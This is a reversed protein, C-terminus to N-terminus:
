RGGAIPTADDRLPPLRVVFTSGEGVTSEVTIEGGLAETFRKCIALGLGSGRPRTWGSNLREFPTFLADLQSSAIGPGSDAVRLVLAGGEGSLHLGVGGTSTYAIANNLLNLLVQRVRRADSRLTSPSSPDVHLTLDLGRREAQDAMVDIIGACLEGPAFDGVKLSLGGSELRTWDITDNIVALLTDSADHMRSVYQAARPDLAAHMEMLDLTAILASLPTRLEHSMTTLFLQKVEAAVAARELAGRLEENLHETHERARREMNRALANLGVVVGIGVPIAVATVAHAGPGGLLDPLQAGAQATVIFGLMTLVTALGWLLTDRGTHLVGIWVMMLVSFPAYPSSFGGSLGMGATLAIWTGLAVVHAAWRVSGVRVVVLFAAVFAITLFDGVLGVWHTGLVLHYLVSFACGAPVLIWGLLVIARGRQREIPTSDVPLRSIADDLARDISGLWATM